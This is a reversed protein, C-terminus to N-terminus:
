QETQTLYLRALGQTRAAMEERVSQPSLVEAQEGFIMLWGYFTPSLGVTVRAIFTDGDPTLDVNDGFRDIVANALTNHFRIKVPVKEGAFMGFMGKCYEAVNLELQGTVERINQVTERTIEIDDMRDVRFHTLKHYRPHYAILYYNDDTWSLAYPSVSYREGDHRFIKEKRPSYDFYRFTVKKKRVIARNLTDVNLYIRENDAKVRDYVYVQRQLEGAQYRSTLTELKKILQNSKRHTIFRASQVADVLLRLEPLEFCREGVAYVTTRGERRLVIDMGLERLTEIDQYLSKREARIGRVALLDTIQAISLGHTDDTEELLINQLCLLKKKQSNREPM